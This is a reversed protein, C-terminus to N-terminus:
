WMAYVADTVGDTSIFAHPIVQADASFKDAAVYDVPLVLEVGNKKAKDVIEQVLKSGPEDFLSKGIQKM